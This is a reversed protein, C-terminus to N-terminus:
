LTQVTISLTGLTLVNQTASPSIIAGTPTNIRFSIVGDVSEKIEDEVTSKIINDGFQLAGYDFTITKLYEEVEEKVESSDYDSDVYLVAEINVVEAVYPNLDFTTGIMCRDTIFETIESVLNNTLSYGERLMYYVHVLKKNSSDVSSAVQLFDYFNARLLDNYDQLTVLRNKSRYIAPANEKISDLEEKEHGLTVLGVNTTSSVYPISTDIETVTGIDVNGVEGGGIRYNATIGNAYSIPIKGKLGDGFTVTCVDFEDISATYVMSDATSNIFSDVRTWLKAGTGEDVYLEISDILVEPYDLEFTQLPSGNSTGLVDDSVSEGQIAKVTYLFNGDSDKENGIKTAPIVLDEETEFYVPDQDAEDSTRIVTGKPVTVASDLQGDLIFIQTIESPTQNYPSYGLLNALTVALSRDQTTPLVVDNAIIDLYLSLIDLGNALAELIVIGADTESTDTYEPMKEQLKQILLQKFAEYDRSTYDIGETLTRSM